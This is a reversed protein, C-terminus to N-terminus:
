AKISHTCHFSRGVIQMIEMKGAQDLVDPPCHIDLLALPKAFTSSLHPSWERQYRGRLMRLLSSQSFTTGDQIALVILKQCPWASNPLQEGLVAILRDVDGCDYLTLKELDGMMWLHDSLAGSLEVSALQLVKLQYLYQLMSGVPAARYRHHKVTIHLGKPSMQLEKATLEAEESANISLTNSSERSIHLAKLGMSLRALATDEQLTTVDLKLDLDPQLPSMTVQIHQCSPSHIHHLLGMVIPGPLGELALIQLSPLIIPSIAETLQIQGQEMPHEQSTLRLVELAKLRLLLRHYHSLASSYPVRLHLHTLASTVTFTKLPILITPIELKQLRGATVRKSGKILVRCKPDPNTICFVEMNQAADTKCLREFLNRTERVGAVVDMHRVRPFNPLVLDTINRPIWNSYNVHLTSHESRDLMKRAFELNPADVLFSWLRPSRHVIDRWQRCTASFNNLHAARIHSKAEKPISYGMIIDWMEVPVLYAQSFSNRQQAITALHGHLKKLIHTLIGM